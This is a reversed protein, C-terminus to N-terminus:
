SVFCGTIQNEIPLLKANEYRKRM